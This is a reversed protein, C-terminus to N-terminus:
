IKFLSLLMAASNLMAAAIGVSGKDGTGVAKLMAGMMQWLQNSNEVLHRKVRVIDAVAMHKPAWVTQVMQVYAAQKAPDAALADVVAVSNKMMGLGSMKGVGAQSAPTNGSCICLSHPYALNKYHEMSERTVQGGFVDLELQKAMEVSFWCLGNLHTSLPHFLEEVQARVRNLGNTAIQREHEQLVTREAHQRDLLANARDSDKSTKAQVQRLCSAVDSPKTWCPPTLLPIDQLGAFHVM